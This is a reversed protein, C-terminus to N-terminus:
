DSTVTELRATRVPGSPGPQSVKVGEPTVVEVSAITLEASLSYAAAANLGGGNCYQPEDWQYCWNNEDWDCATGLGDWAWCDGWRDCYGCMAFSPTAFLLTVVAVFLTRYRKM